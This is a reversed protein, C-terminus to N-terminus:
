ALLARYMGFSGQTCRSMCTHCHALPTVHSDRTLDDWVYPHRMRIHPIIWDYTVQILSHSPSRSMHLTMDCTHMVCKYTHCSVMILHRTLTHSHSLWMHIVCEYTHHMWIHSRHSHSLSLTHSRSLSLTHSHSLTHPTVYWYPIHCLQTRWTANYVPKNMTWEYHYHYSLSICAAYRHPTDCMDIRWTVNYIPEYKMWLSSPLLTLHLDRILSAYWEYWHTMDCEYKIWLSSLIFTLYSDYTVDRSCAQEHSIDYWEDKRSMICRYTVHRMHIHCSAYTHWLPCRSTVWIVWIMLWIVSWGNVDVRKLQPELIFLTSKLGRSFSMRQCGIM